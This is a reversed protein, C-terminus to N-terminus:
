RAFYMNDWEFFVAERCAMFFGLRRYAKEDPKSCEMENGAPVAPKPHAYKAPL